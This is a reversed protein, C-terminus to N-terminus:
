LPIFIKVPRGVTGYRQESKLEGRQELFELYHRVTVRTLKVGLAVEEASLPRRNAQLFQVILALTVKNLGKPLGEDGSRWPTDLKPQPKPRNAVTNDITQGRIPESIPESISEAIPEAISESMTEALPEVIAEAIAESGKIQGLVIDIESGPLDSEPISHTSQNIEGTLAQIQELMQNFADELEEIEKAGSVNIRQVLRGTAVERAGLMINHLPYIIIKQMFFWALFAVFVTLALGLEAMTTLSRTMFEQEYAHSIGVYFMGIITGSESRLPVYGAQYRQDVVDAEGLYTQGNKLVTQAVKTSVKTGIAREGNSGLVTTAVRTEGLFVTVTDGTLRSLHDVIDNNLSMKIPGKYLEGDRVSWPGPYKINIIEGCTALDAQAKVIATAVGRGEMYWGLVGLFTGALIVLSGLLLILIQHKLSRVTVGGEIALVFLEGTFNNFRKKLFLNM